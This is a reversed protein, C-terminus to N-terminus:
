LVKDRAAQRRDAQRSRFWGACACCQFRQYVQTATRAFGRAQVKSSGCRPCGEHGWLQRNVHTSVFPRLREFVRELLDVDDKNYAVMTTIADRDGRLADLWLGSPTATKGGFGLYKGLYDLRNSNLYFRRRAIKLTDITQVPPLPPLGHKLVRGALWRLDFKDGNHAVLVDAESVVRHLTKVVHLDDAPSAKFRKKDDLVSVAHTQKEGLAKWAGCIIYREQILNGYHTFEERLDFKAIINHAVEIDWLVIRPESM